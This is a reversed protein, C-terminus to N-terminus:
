RHLDVKLVVTEAAPEREGGGEHAAEAALKLQAPVPLQAQPLIECAANRPQPAAVLRRNWM